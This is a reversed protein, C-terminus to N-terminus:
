SRDGGSALDHMGYLGPPQGAVFKAARLAGVAYTRRGYARHVVRIEEGEDAFLVAHEGPNGGARVAHVGIEGPPRRGTGRRGVVVDGRATAGAAGAIAEVLALATGSPADAKHRHHAEVVEVDYDALAAALTPLLALLANLGVSMNRAHFVAIRQSLQHLTALQDRDFGTTGTVIPRGAAACAEAHALTAGPETFDILVDIAPLLSELRDVVRAPPPELRAAGPRGTGGVLEVGDDDAAAAAIERGMRGQIGAIGIRVPVDMGEEAPVISM